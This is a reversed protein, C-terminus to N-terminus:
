EDIYPYDGATLSSFMEIFAPPASRRRIVAHAFCEAAALLWNQNCEGLSDQESRFEAALETVVEPGSSRRLKLGKNGLKQLLCLEEVSVLMMGERGNLADM